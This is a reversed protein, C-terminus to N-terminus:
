IIEPGKGGKEVKGWTLLIHWGSEGVEPIRSWGATLLGVDNNEGNKGSRPHTWEKKETLRTHYM